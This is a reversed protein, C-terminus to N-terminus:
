IGLRRRRTRRRGAISFAGAAAIAMLIAGSLILATDPTGPDASGSDVAQPATVGTPSTSAAAPVFVLGKPSQLSTLLPTVIGTAPDLTGVAARNALDGKSPKPQSVVITGPTMTATDLSYIVGSGQDAIYLTGPGTIQELDDLQPTVSATGTANHLNLQKLTPTAATLNSAFVLKSDAQADQVLASQGAVTIIRNSDPDTLALKTTAPAGAAPNIVSARDNVGFVPTLSATSGSLTARYLAPADNPPALTPDPNSHALYISGDAAISISDTGGNSGDSGKQAPDPSYTYHTPAKDGPTIAYLTSNLDENATALVRHRTPDATLGDVRGAISWLQSAHGARDLAVVTSHSGAPSGDAGANNQYTVFLLGDLMTIDDPKVAGSPASAFVTPASIPATTAAHAPAGALVALMVTSPILAGRAVLRLNKGTM